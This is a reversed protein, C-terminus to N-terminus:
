GIVTLYEIEDAKDDQIMELVRGVNSILSKKPDVLKASLNIKEQNIAHQVNQAFPTFDATGKKSDVLTAEYFLSAICRRNEGDTCPVYGNQLIESCKPQIITEYANPKICLCLFLEIAPNTYAFIIHKKNAEILAKIESISNKAAYVDLDFFLLVKDMKKDFHNQKDGIVQNALRILGNLDTVGKDNGTKEVGIFNISGNLGISSNNLIKELFAPETNTGECLVFVKRADPLISVPRKFDFLKHPPIQISGLPSTRFPAM